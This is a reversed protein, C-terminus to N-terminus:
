VLLYTFVTTVLYEMICTIEMLIVKFGDTSVSINSYRFVTVSFRAMSQSAMDFYCVGFGISVILRLKCISGASVGTTLKINEM